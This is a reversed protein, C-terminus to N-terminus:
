PRRSGGLAETLVGETAPMQVGLLRALTPALRGPRIEGLREGRRIRPRGCRVRRENQRIRRLIRKGQLHRAAEGAVVFEDGDARGSFGCGAKALLVLDAM